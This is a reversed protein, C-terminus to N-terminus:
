SKLKSLFITYPPLPEWFTLILKEASFNGAESSERCRAFIAERWTGKGEPEDIVM